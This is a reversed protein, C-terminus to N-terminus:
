KKKDIIEKCQSETLKEYEKRQNYPISYNKGNYKIYPGYQGSCLTYIGVQINEKRASVPNTSSSSSNTNASVQGLLEQAQEITIDFDDNPINCSKGTDSKMYLGHRGWYLTIGGGLVRPLAAISLATNAELHDLDSDKPLPFFKASKGKGLQIAPGYKTVTGVVDLGACKGYQKKSSQKGVIGVAERAGKQDDSFGQYFGGIVDVWAQNGQAIEDFSEEIQRTFGLDMTKPFKEMLFNTVSIGLESCMLKKKEVGIKVNQKKQTIKNSERLTIITSEFEQGPSDAVIVYGREQVKSVMQAYTAPRGIGKDELEKVLTGETYRSPPNKYKQEGVIQKRLVLDNEKLKPLLKDSEANYLVKYGDFRMIEGKARFPKPAGVIDVITQDVIAPSMQSAITRKWILNYLRLCPGELGEPIESAPNTPRICEHAEQAESLKSKYQTPKSYEVGWRDVITNAIATAAEEAINTCDTRMYTIHGGEYLKQALDMTQKSSYKLMSSSEQQLSSTTFPASPKRKSEKATISGVTFTIDKLTVFLNNTEEVTELKGKYETTFEENAETKFIGSIAMSATPVHAAIAQDKEMVIRSVVSQVRGSSKANQFATWVIESQGYGIIRDLIRRAQQAYFMNNDIVGPNNVANTIAKKTIEHFKVRHYPKGSPIIADALHWGIAEGERDDDTAIWVVNSAKALRKLEAVKPKKDKVIEYTPTFNNELDISLTETPLDRFIGFSAKVIYDDGLYNQIKKEKAPSEVVLLDPM